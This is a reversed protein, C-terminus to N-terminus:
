TTVSGDQDAQKFLNEAIMNVAYEEKLSNWSTCNEWKGSSDRKHAKVKTLVPTGNRDPMIIETNIYNDLSELYIYTM